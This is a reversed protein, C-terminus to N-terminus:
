TRGQGLDPSSRLMEDGATHFADVEPDLVSAVTPVWHLKCSASRSGSGWASDSPANAHSYIRLAKPRVKSITKGEKIFANISLQRLERADGEAVEKLRAFERMVLRAGSALVKLMKKAARLEVQSRVRGDDFNSVWSPIFAGLCAHEGGKTNFAHHLIELL